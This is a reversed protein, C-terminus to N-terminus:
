TTTNNDNTHRKVLQPPVFTSCPGREFGGVETAGINPCAPVDVVEPLPSLAGAEVVTCDVAVTVVGMGDVLVEDGGSIAVVVWGSLVVDLVVSGGGVVAGSTM